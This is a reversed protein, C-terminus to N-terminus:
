AIRKILWSGDALRYIDFDKFQDIFSKDNEVEEVSMYIAELEEYEKDNLSKALDSYYDAIYDVMKNKFIFTKTITKM